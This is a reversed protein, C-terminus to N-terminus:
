GPRMTERATAWALVILFIAAGAISMWLFAEGITGPM